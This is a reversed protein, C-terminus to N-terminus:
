IRESAQFLDKSHIIQIATGIIKALNKNKIVEEREEFCRAIGQMQDTDM